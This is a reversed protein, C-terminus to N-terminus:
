SRGNRTIVVGHKTLNMKVSQVILLDYLALKDVCNFFAEDNITLEGDDTIDFYDWTQRNSSYTIVALHRNGPEAGITEDFQRQEM